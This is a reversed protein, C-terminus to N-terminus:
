GCCCACSGGLALFWLPPDSGTAPVRQPPGSSWGGSSLIRPCRRDLSASRGHLVQPLRAVFLDVLMQEFLETSADCQALPPQQGAPKEGFIQFDKAQVGQQRSYNLDCQFSVLTHTSSRSSGRISSRPDQQKCPPTQKAVPPDETATQESQEAWSPRQTPDDNDPGMWGLRSDDPGTSVLM